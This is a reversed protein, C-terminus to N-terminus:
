AGSRMFAAPPPCVAVPRLADVQSSRVVGCAVSAVRLQVLPGRPQAPKAFVGLVAGIVIGISAALAVAHWLYAARLSSHFHPMRPEFGTLPLDDQALPPKRWRTM